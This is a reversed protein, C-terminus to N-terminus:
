NSHSRGLEEVITDAIENCTTHGPGDTRHIKLTLIGNTLDSRVLFTDGRLPIRNYNNDLYSYLIRVRFDLTGNDMITSLLTDLDKTLPKFDVSAETIDTAISRKANTIPGKQTAINISGSKNNMHAFTKVLYPLDAWFSYQQEFEVENLPFHHYIRKRM